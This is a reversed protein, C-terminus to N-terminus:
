RKLGLDLLRVVASGEVRLGIAKAKCIGSVGLGVDRFVVEPM